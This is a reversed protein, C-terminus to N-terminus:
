PFLSEPLQNLTMAIVWDPGIVDYEGYISGLDGPSMLNSIVKHDM